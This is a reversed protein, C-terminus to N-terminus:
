LSLDKIDVVDSEVKFRYNCSQCIAWLKRPVVGIDQRNIGYHPFKDQEGFENFYVERETIAVPYYVTVRSQKHKESCRPCIIKDPM